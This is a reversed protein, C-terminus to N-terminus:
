SRDRGAWRQTSNDIRGSYRVEGRRDVVVAQPTVTARVAAALSGDRDIAARHNRQYRYEALHRAVASEPSRRPGRLDVPLWGRQVRVRRLHAPDGACLFELRPLRDSSSSLVNAIGAPELPHLVAGDISRIQLPDPRWPWRALGSM